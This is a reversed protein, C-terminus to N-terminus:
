HVSTAISLAADQLRIALDRPWDSATRSTPMTVSLALAPAVEDGPIAVAVCRCGSLYEEDDVAFGRTRATEVAARLEDASAITRETLRTYEIRALRAELEELPLQALMVKGLATAHASLRSGVSSALRMPRDPEEILLYVCDVDDLQALQVTENLEDRLAKIVPGAFEQLNTHGRYSRGVQWAKLGLAYERTRRDHTIWGSAILTQLLGHASSRPLGVEAIIDAWGASGSEALFEIVALARDASKVAKGSTAV